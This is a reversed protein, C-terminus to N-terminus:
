QDLDMIRRYIKTPDTSLGSDSLSSSPPPDELAADRHRQCITKAEDSFGKVSLYLEQEIKSREELGQTVEQSIIPIPLKM